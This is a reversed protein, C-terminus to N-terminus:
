RKMFIESINEWIVHELELLDFLLNLNNSVNHKIPGADASVHYEFHPWFVKKMLYKIEGKVTNM